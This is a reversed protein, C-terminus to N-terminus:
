EQNPVVTVSDWRTEADLVYDKVQEDPVALDIAEHVQTGNEVQFENRMIIKSTGVAGRERM